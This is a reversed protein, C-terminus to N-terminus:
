PRFGEFIVVAGDNKVIEYQTKDRVTWDVEVAGFLKRCVRLTLCDRDRTNYALFDPRAAVNFLVHHLCFDALHHIKENGHRIYYETLQGRIWQSRNRRFWLLVRPDFSEICFLGEYSDLAEAIRLSLLEGNGLEPKAEIILPTRGKVLKLIEKLEPIREKTGCLRCERLQAFTMNEVQGDIGCVRDLTSDHIVALRGDRTLHVDLEMGYGKEAALSFAALSNEPIGKEKDHLGRHAYDYGKMWDTEPRDVTRTKVLFGWLAALAVGNKLLRNTREGM